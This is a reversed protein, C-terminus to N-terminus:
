GRKTPVGRLSILFEGAPTPKIFEVLNKKNTNGDFNLWGGSSKPEIFGSDLLVYMWRRFNEDHHYNYEPLKSIGHLIEYAQDCLSYIVLKNVIEQQKLIVDWQRKTEEGQDDVAKQLLEFKMGFVEGSKVHQGIFPIVWPSLAIFILVLGVSDIHFGPVFFHLLALVGSTISVLRKAFLDEAITKEVSRNGM